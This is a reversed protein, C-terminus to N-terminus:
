QLASSNLNALCTLVTQIKDVPCFSAPLHVGVTRGEPDHEAAGSRLEFTATARPYQSLARTQFKEDDRPRSTTRKLFHSIKSEGLRVFNIYPYSAAPM